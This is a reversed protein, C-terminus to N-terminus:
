IVGRGKPEQLDINSESDGSPSSQQSMESGVRFALYVLLVGVPGWIELIMM